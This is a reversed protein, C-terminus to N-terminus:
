NSVLELVDDVILGIGEAYFKDEGDAGTQGELPNWDLLHLADFDGAPVSVPEDLAIVASM